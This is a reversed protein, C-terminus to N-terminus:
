SDPHSTLVAGHRAFPADVDLFRTAAESAPLAKSFLFGQAYHCGLASLEALQGETEVGEAIVSLGLTAALQTIIHVIKLSEANSGLDHVFSRDVKLTDFPFRNLYSLSSYGTGFDDLSLGVGLGKLDLLLDAAIEANTMLASETIELRLGNGHIGAGILARHVDGALGGDRFQMSSVNVSCSLPARRPYASSWAALQRCASELAFRGLPVILGCAEAIPIFENPPILGREPHTWRALAEFGVVEGSKLSVIPQYHLDLGGNEIARRLDAELEFESQARARLEDHYVISRGVGDRRARSLAIGANRLLEESSVTYPSAYAIGASGSVHVVRGALIFAARLREHMIRAATQALNADQGVVLVAFEDGSLRAILRADPVGESLRHAYELLLENAIEFGLGENISQFRNLNILVIALREGPKRSALAATVAHSFAALNPLATLPDRLLDHDVGGSGSQSQVNIVIEAAGDAAVMPSIDLAHRAGNLTLELISDQKERLARCAAQIVEPHALLADLRDEAAAFLRKAAANMARCHLGDDGSMVAWILPAPRRSVAPLASPPKALGKDSPQRQRTSLARKAM